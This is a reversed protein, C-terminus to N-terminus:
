TLHVKSGAAHFAAEIMEDQSINPPLGFKDAGEGSLFPGADGDFVVYVTKPVVNDQKNASFFETASEFITKTYM